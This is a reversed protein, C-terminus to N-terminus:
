LLGVPMKTFELEKVDAAILKRAMQYDAFFEDRRKIMEKAEPQKKKSFLLSMPIYGSYGAKNVLELEALYFDVFSDMLMPSEVLVKVAEYAARDLVGIEEISTYDHNKWKIIASGVQHKNASAM